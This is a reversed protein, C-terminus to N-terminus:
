RELAGRIVEHILQNEVPAPVEGKFASGIRINNWITMFMQLPETENRPAIVYLRNSGPDVRVKNGWKVRFDEARRDSVPPGM